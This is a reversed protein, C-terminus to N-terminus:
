RDAFVKRPYDSAQLVTVRYGYSVALAVIPEMQLSIKVTAPASSTQDATRSIPARCVRNSPASPSARLCAMSSAGRRRKQLAGPPDPKLYVVILCAICIGLGVLPYQLAVVAAIGFFCLTAISESIGLWSYSAVGDHSQM